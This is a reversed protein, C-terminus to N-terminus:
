GEGRARHLAAAGLGVAACGLWLATGGWARLVLGGLPPALIGTLGWVLQHAGQYRAREAEPALEAILSPTTTFTLIEGLTWVVISAAFVPAGGAFAAAGFGLGILAAGAALVRARPLRAIRGVLFPQVLVIVIGNLALLQGVEATTLGQGRMDLPLAVMVQQFVLYVLAQVGLFTAFRPTRFPALFAALFPALVPPLRQGAGQPPPRGPEGIPPPAPLSESLGVLVLAGFALTTLADVVFLLTFSVQALAGALM